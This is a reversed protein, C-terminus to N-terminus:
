WRFLAVLTAGIFFSAIAVPIMTEIPPAAPPQPIEVYQNVNAEFFAIDYLDIVGDQNVDFQWVYNPRGPTAGFCERVFSILDETVLITGL